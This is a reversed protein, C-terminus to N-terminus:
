LRKALEAQQEEVLRQRTVAGLLSSEEEFAKGFHGWSEAVSVKLTNVEGLKDQKYRTV